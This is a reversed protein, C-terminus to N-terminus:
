GLKYALFARCVSTVIYHDVVSLQLQMENKNSRKM